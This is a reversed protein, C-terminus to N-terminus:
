FCVRMFLCVGKYATSHQMLYKVMFSDEASTFEPFLIRIYHMFSRCCLCPKTINETGAIAERSPVNQPFHTKGLLTCHSCIYTVQSMALSLQIFVPNEVDYDFLPRRNLPGDDVESIFRTATNPLCFWINDANQQVHPPIDGDFAISLNRTFTEERLADIADMSLDFEDGGANSDAIYGDDLDADEDEHADGGTSASALVPTVLSQSVLKPFDERNLRVPLYPSLKLRVSSSGHTQSIDEVNAGVKMPRGRKKSPVPPTYTPRLENKVTQHHALAVRQWEPGCKPPILGLLNLRKCEKSVTEDTVCMCACRKAQSKGAWEIPLILHCTCKAYVEHFASIHDDEFGHLNEAFVKRSVNQQILCLIGPGDLAAPRNTPM